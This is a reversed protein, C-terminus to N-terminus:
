MRPVGGTDLPSGTANMPALVASGALGYPAATRTSTSKIYLRQAIRVIVCEIATSKPM